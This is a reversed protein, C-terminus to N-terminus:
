GVHKRGGVRRTLGKVGSAKGRLLKWLRKSQSKGYAGEGFPKGGKVDGWDAATTFSGGPLGRAV